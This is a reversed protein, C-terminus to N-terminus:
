TLRTWVVTGDQVTGGVSGPLEPADEGSTGATTAKVTGEGLTVVDDLAYETGPEWEAPAPDAPPPTVGEGDSTGTPSELHSAYNQYIHDVGVFGRDEDNYIDEFSADSKALFNPVGSTDVAKGGSPNTSRTNGPSRAPTARGQNPPVQPFVPNGKKTDVTAM